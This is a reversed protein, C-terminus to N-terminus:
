CSSLPAQFIEKTQHLNCFPISSLNCSGGMSTVIVRELKNELQKVGEGEMWHGFLQTQSVDQM